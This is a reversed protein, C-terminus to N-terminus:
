ICSALTEFNNVRVARSTAQTLITNANFINYLDIFPELRVAGAQFVRGIRLDLLSVNDYRSDDNRELRIRQSSRTLDPVTSRGFSVTRQRSHGTYAM